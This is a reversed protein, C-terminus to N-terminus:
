VADSLRCEFEALVARGLPTQWSRSDPLAAINCFMAEFPTRESFPAFLGEHVLEDDAPDWIGGILPYPDPAYILQFAKFRPDHGDEDSHEHLWQALDTLTPTLVAQWRCYRAWTQRWDAAHPAAALARALAETIEAVRGPDPSRTAPLEREIADAQALANQAHARALTAKASPLFISAEIM